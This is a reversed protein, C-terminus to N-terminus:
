IIKFFGYVQATRVAGCCAHTITFQTTNHHTDAGQLHCSLLASVHLLLQTVSQVCLNYFLASAPTV